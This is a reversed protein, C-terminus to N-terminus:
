LMVKVHYPDCTRTRYHTGYMVGLSLQPNHKKFSQASFCHNGFQNGYCRREPYILYNTVHLGRGMNAHASPLNQSRSAPPTHSPM